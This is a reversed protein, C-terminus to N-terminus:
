TKNYNQFRKGLLTIAISAVHGMDLLANKKSFVKDEFILQEGMDYYLRYAIGV